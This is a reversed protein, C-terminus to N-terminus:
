IRKVICCIVQARFQESDKSNEASHLSRQKELTRSLGSSIPSVYTSSSHEEVWRVKGEVGSFKKDHTDMKRVLQLLQSKVDKVHDGSSAVAAELASIARADSDLRLRMSEVARSVQVFILSPFLHLAFFRSAREVDGISAGAIDRSQRVDADSVAASLAIFSSDLRAIDNQQRGTVRVSEDAIARIQSSANLHSFSVCVHNFSCTM